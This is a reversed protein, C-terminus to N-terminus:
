QVPKFETKSFLHRTSQKLLRYITAIFLEIEEKQLQKIQNESYQKDGSYYHYIAEIPRAYDVVNITNNDQITYNLGYPRSNPKNYYSGRKTNKQLFNNVNSFKQNELGSPYVITLRFDTDSYSGLYQYREVKQTFMQEIGDKGLLDELAGYQEKTLLNKKDDLNESYNKFVLFREYAIAGDLPKLFNHFYGIAVGTAIGDSNELLGLKERGEGPKKDFLTSIYKKVPGSFVDWSIDILKGTLLLTFPDM